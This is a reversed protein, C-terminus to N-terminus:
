VTKVMSADKASPKAEKYALPIYRVKLRLGKLKQIQIINYTKCIAHPYIFYQSSVIQACSTYALKSEGKSVELQDL